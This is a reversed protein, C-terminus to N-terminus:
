DGLSKGEKEILGAIEVLSYKTLISVAKDLGSRFEESGYRYADALDEFMDESSVEDDMLLRAMVDASIIRECEDATYCIYQLNADAEYDPEEPYNISNIVDFDEYAEQGAFNSITQVKNCGEDALIICKYANDKGNEYNFSDLLKLFEQGKDFWSLHMDSCTKYLISDDQDLIIRKVPNWNKKTEENAFFADVKKAVNKGAMLGIEYRTGM